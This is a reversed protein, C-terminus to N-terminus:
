TVVGSVRRQSSIRRPILAERSIFLPYLLIRLLKVSGSVWMIACLSDGEM